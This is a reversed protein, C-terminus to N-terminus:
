SNPDATVLRIYHADIATKIRAAAAPKLKGVDEPSLNVPELVWGAIVAARIARGREHWQGAGEDAQYAAFYREFHDLSLDPDLKWGAPLQGDGGAYAAHFRDVVHSLTGDVTKIDFLLSLAALRELTKENVDIQTM